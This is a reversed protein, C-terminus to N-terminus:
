FSYFSFTPKSPALLPTLLFLLSECSEIGDIFSTLCYLLLRNLVAVAYSGIATKAKSKSLFFLRVVIGTSGNVNEHSTGVVTVRCGLM